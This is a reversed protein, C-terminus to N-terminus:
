RIPEWNNSFSKEFFMVFFANLGWQFITKLYGNKRFRRPSEYVFIEDVYKVKGIRSLRFYLDFDEGAHIKPNYGGAKEFFSRRIIQCEGRGMGIGLLNLFRVYNNHLFYFIKDKLNEEEPFPKVKVALAITTRDTKAWTHIYNLFKDLCCPITDGNIFVLIEGKAIQSGLNRGEAITQRHKGHHLVYNSTFKRVIQLTKDTSGGDSIILEANYKELISKDYKSLVSELIKEEQFVPIVISIFPKQPTRSELKPLKKKKVYDFTNIKEM